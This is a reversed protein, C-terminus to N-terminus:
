SLRCYRKRKWSSGTGASLGITGRTNSTNNGGTVNVEGRNNITGTEKTMLGISGNSNVKVIGTATNNGTGTGATYMGINEGRKSMFKLDEESFTGDENAVFLTMPTVVLRNKIEVGNNLTYKEFIKNSNM